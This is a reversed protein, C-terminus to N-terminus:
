EESIIKDYEALLKKVGKGKESHPASVIQTLHHYERAKAKNAAKLMQVIRKYPLKRAEHFKYQPFYFCFEAIVEEAKINKTPIKAAKITAM